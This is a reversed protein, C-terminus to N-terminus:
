KIPAQSHKIFGTFWYHNAQCYEPVPSYPMNPNVLRNQFDRVSPSGTLSVWDGNRFTQKGVQLVTGNEILKSGGVLIPITAFKGTKEDFDLGVCGSVIRLQGDLGANKTTINENVLNEHGYTPLTWKPKIEQKSQTQSITNQCACICLLILVTYILNNMNNVM